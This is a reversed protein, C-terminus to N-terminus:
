GKVRLANFGLPGLGKVRRVPVPDRAALGREELAENVREEEEARRHEELRRLASPDGRAVAVAEAAREAEAAAIVAAAPGRFPNSCLM